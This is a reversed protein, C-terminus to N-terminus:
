KNLSKLIDKEQKYIYDLYACAVETDTDSKFNYNNKILEEKLPIYNEIIGNHVITFKGVKHPHANTQTPHGHTAWRTHGIALNSKIDKELKSKLNKIRGTEKTIILKNDKIYAIGASDYGRYELNELGEIVTTIANENKGKYGVIGCM